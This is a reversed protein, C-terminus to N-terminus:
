VQTLLRAKLPNHVMFETRESILTYFRTTDLTRKSDNTYYHVYYHVSELCRPVTGFANTIQIQLYQDHVM